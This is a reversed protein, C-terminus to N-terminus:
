EGKEVVAFNKAEVEIGNSTYTEDTYNVIIVKGNSYTVEVV